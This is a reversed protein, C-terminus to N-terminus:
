IRQQKKDCYTKKCPSHEWLQELFSIDIDLHILNKKKM